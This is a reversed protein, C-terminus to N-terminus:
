GDGRGLVIKLSGVPVNLGNGASIYGFSSTNQDRIYDDGPRRDIIRRPTPSSDWIEYRNIVADNIDSIVPWNVAINNKITARNFGDAGVAGFTVTQMPTNELTSTPVGVYNTDQILKIKFPGVPRTWGSTKGLAWSLADKLVASDFGMGVLAIGGSQGTWEFADGGKVTFGLNGNDYSIRRPPSGSDWWEEGHLTYEEAATGPWLLYGENIVQCNAMNPRSQYQTISNFTLPVRTAAGTSVETGPTLSTADDAALWRSVIPATPQTISGGFIFKLIDQNMKLDFDTSSM